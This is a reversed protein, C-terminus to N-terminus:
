WVGGELFATELAVIEAVGLEAAPRV